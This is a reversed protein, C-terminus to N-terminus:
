VVKQIIRGYVVHTFGTQDDTYNLSIYGTYITGVGGNYITSNSYCNVQFTMNSGIQLYPQSISNYGIQNSTSQLNNCGIATVNIPTPSSQEINIILNGNTYLFANLCGFDAPFECINPTFARNNFVGLAYLAVITIAIILIAWSYTILYEMASQLKM